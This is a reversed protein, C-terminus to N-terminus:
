NARSTKAPRSRAADKPKEHVTADPQALPLSIDEDDAVVSVVAGKRPAGPAESMEVNKRKPPTQAAPVPHPSGKVEEPMVTVSARGAEKAAARAKMAEDYSALAEDDSITCVVPAAITMMAGGNKRRDVEEEMAEQMAAAVDPDVQVQRPVNVDVSRAVPYGIGPGLVDAVQGIYYLAAITPQMADLIDAMDEKESKRPKWEMGVKAIVLANHRFLYAKENESMEVFTIAMPTGPKVGPTLAPRYCPITVFRVDPLCAGCIKAADLVKASVSPSVRGSTYQMMAKFKAMADKGVMDGTTMGQGYRLSPAFKSGASEEWVDQANKTRKGPYLITPCLRERVDIIYKYLQAPNAPQGGAVGRLSQAVFPLPSAAGARVLASTVEETIATIFGMEDLMDRTMPHPRLDDAPYAPDIWSEDVPSSLPPKTSTVDTFYRTIDHGVTASQIVFPATDFTKLDTKAWAEHGNADLVRRSVTVTARKMPKFKTKVTTFKVTCHPNPSETDPKCYKDPTEALSADRVKLNGHYEPFLACYSRKFEAYPKSLLKKILVQFARVQMANRAPRDPVPEPPASILASQDIVATLNAISPVLSM